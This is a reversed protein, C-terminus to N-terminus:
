CLTRAPLIYHQLSMPSSRASAPYRKWGAKMSSTPLPETLAAIREAARMYARSRFYSGSGMLATRRGLEVLLKAATGADLKAM